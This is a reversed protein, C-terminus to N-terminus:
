VGANIIEDAVTGDHTSYYTLTALALVLTCLGITLAIAMSPSQEWGLQRITVREFDASIRAFSDRVEEILLDRTATPDFVEGTFSRIKRFQDLTRAADDTMNALDAFSAQGLDRRSLRHFLELTRDFYALGARFSLNRGLVDERLLNTPKIQNLARPLQKLEGADPTKSKENARYRCQNQQVNAPQKVNLPEAILCSAYSQVLDWPKSAHNSRAALYVLGIKLDDLHNNSIRYSDIM